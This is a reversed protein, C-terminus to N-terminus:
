VDHRERVVVVPCMANEILSRTVSGLPQVTTGATGVMLAMADQGVRRLADAPRGAVLARKVPVAPFKLHWPELEDALAAAPELDTSLHTELWVDDFWVDQDVHATVTVAVLGARHAAAFSFGYGLAARAASSGDVGVVVHGRFAGGIGSRAHAAPEHVIAVPCPARTVVHYATGARAWWGSRVPAGVAIVDLPTALQALAEGPADPNLVLDVKSEGLRDRAAAVAKAAAKDVLELASLTRPGGSMGARGVGARVVLVRAKTVTSEAVAWALARFHSPSGIGVVIRDGTM